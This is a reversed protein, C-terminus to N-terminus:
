GTSAYLSGDPQYDALKRPGHFVALRADLYRHVGAGSGQRLPLPPDRYSSRTFPRCSAISTDFTSTDISPMSSASRSNKAAMRSPLSGLAPTAWHRSRSASAPGGSHTGPRCNRSVIGRRVATDRLTLGSRGHVQVSRRGLVPICLGPYRRGCELDTDGEEPSTSGEAERARQTRRLRPRLEPYSRLRSGVTDPLLGRHQGVHLQWRAICQSRLRGWM